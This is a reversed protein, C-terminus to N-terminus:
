KIRVDIVNVNVYFFKAGVLANKLYDLGYNFEYNGFTGVIYDLTNLVKYVSYIDGVKLGKASM